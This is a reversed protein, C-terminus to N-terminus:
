SKDTKNTDLAIIRTILDREVDLFYEELLEKGENGERGDIVKKREEMCRFAFKIGEQFDRTGM